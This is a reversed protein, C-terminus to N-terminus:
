KTGSWVVRLTKAGRGKGPMRGDAGRLQHCGWRAQRRQERQLFRLFVALLEGRPQNFSKANDGQKHTPLPCACAAYEGKFRLAIKYRALVDTLKIEKIRNFDLM